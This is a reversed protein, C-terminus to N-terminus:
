KTDTVGVSDPETILKDKCRRSRRSEDGDSGAYEDLHCRAMQVDPHSRSVEIKSVRNRSGGGDGGGGGGLREAKKLEDKDDSGLHSGLRRVEKGGDNLNAKRGRGEGNRGNEAGDGAGREEKRKEEREKKKDRREGSDKSHSKKKESKKITMRRQGLPPPSAERRVDEEEEREEEEEEREEEEEEEEEVEEVREDQSEEGDDEEVGSNKGCADITLLRIDRSM